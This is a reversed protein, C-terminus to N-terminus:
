DRHFEGHNEPRFDRAEFVVIESKALMWLFHVAGTAMHCASRLPTLKEREKVAGRERPNCPCNIM